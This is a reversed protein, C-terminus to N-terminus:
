QLCNYLLSVEFKYVLLLEAAALQQVPRTKRVNKQLFTKIQLQQSPSSERWVHSENM